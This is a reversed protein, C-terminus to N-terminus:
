FFRRPGGREEDDRTMEITRTVITPLGYPPSNLKVEMPVEKETEDPTRCRESDTRTEAVMSDKPYSVPREGGDSHPLTRGAYVNPKTPHAIKRRHTDIKLLGSRPSRVAIPIFSDHHSQPTTVEMGTYCDDVKISPSSPLLLTGNNPNGMQRLGAPASVSVPSLPSSKPQMRRRGIVVEPCPQNIIRRQRTVRISRTPYVSAPTPASAPAAPKSSSPVPSNAHDDDDSDPQGIEGRGEEGCSTAEEEKVEPVRKTATSRQKKKLIEHKVHQEYEEETLKMEGM